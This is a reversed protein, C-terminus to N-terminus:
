TQIPSTTRLHSIQSRNALMDAKLEGGGKETIAGALSVDVSIKTTASAGFTAVPVPAPPQSYAGFHGTVLGSM